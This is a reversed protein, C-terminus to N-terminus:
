IRGPDDRKPPKPGTESAKGVSFDLITVPSPDFDVIPSPIGPDPETSEPESEPEPFNLATSDCTEPEVLTPESARREAAQAEAQHFEKLAKYMARETAAEYKRALIREPSADFLARDPAEARDRALADLDMSNKLKMLRVMEEDLIRTLEGKAWAARAPGELGEGDAKDLHHFFTGDMADSLAKIRAIRYGGPNRGLLADFHMRHNGTWCNRDPNLLDARLTEWQDLLWDIGEPTMQLRRVSTAPEAYIKTGLEEAEALRQDDFKEVAHRVRTSLEATDNRECREIRVSMFAFRRLLIASEATSPKLEKSLDDYRQDIADQDESPLAVGEGTLGHKLANCRVRAKGEPTKPGTSKLANKRNALLRAESIAM